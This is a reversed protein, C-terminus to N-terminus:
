LRVIVACYGSLLRVIVPCYGCLLANIVAFDAHSLSPFLHVRYSHLIGECSIHFFQSLAFREVFHLFIQM